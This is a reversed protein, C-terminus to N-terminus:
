RFYISALVSTAFIASFVKYKEEREKSYNKLLNLFESHGKVAAIQTAQTVHHPCIADGECLFKLLALQNNEAANLLYAGKASPNLYANRSIFSLQGRIM